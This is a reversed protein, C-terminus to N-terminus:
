RTPPRWPAQCTSSPPPWRRTAASSRAWRPRPRPRERRARRGPWARRHIQSVARLILPRIQVPLSRHLAISPLRGRTIRCPARFTPPWCTSPTRGTVLRPPTLSSTTSWRAATVHGRKPSPTSLPISIRGTSRSRSARSGPRRRAQTTTTPRPVDLTPTDTTLRPEQSAEDLEGSTDINPSTNDVITSGTASGTNGANDGVMLTVQYTDDPYTDSTTDWPCSVNGNADPTLNSCLTYSNGASDTAQFSASGGRLGSSQTAGRGPTDVAHGTLNLTQSAFRPLAGLSVQPATRDVNVQWHQDQGPDRNGVLDRAAATMTLPGDPTSPGLGYTVSADETLPCSNFQGNCNNSVSLSAQGASNTSAVLGNGSVVQTGMGLGGPLQSHMTLTDNYSNVYASSPPNSHSVSLSPTQTDSSLTAANGLAASSLTGVPIYYNGPFNMGFVAANASTNPAGQPIPANYSCGYNSEYACITGVDSYFNGYLNRVAGGGSSGGDWWGGDAWRNDTVDYIGEYVESVPAGSAPDIYPQNSANFEDVRYIYAGPRSYRVYEGWDAYARYYGNFAYLNLANNQSGWHYGVWTSPSYDTYFGWDGNFFSVPQNQGYPDYVGLTPDVLVPWAADAPAAVHLVLKDSGKVETTVPVAKGQADVAKSPTISLARRAGRMVETTGAPAPSTDLAGSNQLTDGAPLGFVLSIEGPSDPSRLVLSVEVGDPTPRLILDTDKAVNPYFAKGAVIQASADAAGAVHVSIGLSSFSADGAASDPLRLGGPASIPDWSSGHKTLHLDLLASQGDPTVGQLPISSDFLGRKGDGEKVLATTRGLV